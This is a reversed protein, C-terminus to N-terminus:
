AALSKAIYYKLHDVMSDLLREKALPREREVIKMARIGRVRKKLIYHIGFVFGKQYGYMAQPVKPIYLMKARKPGHAKTGKELFRMVKSDNTITWGGIIQATRWERRTQGTWKKPTQEVLRKRTVEAEKFLLANVRRDDIADLLGDFIKEAREDEITIQIM